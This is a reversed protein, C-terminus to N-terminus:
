QSAGASARLNRIHDLVPGSLEFWEGNGRVRLAAFQSHLQHERERPAGDEAALLKLPWPHACQLDALRQRINKLSWGIKVTAPQVPAMTIIFYVGGRSPPEIPTLEVFCKHDEPGFVHPEKTKAEHQLWASRAQRFLDTLDEISLGFESEFPDDEGNAFLEYDAESEESDDDIFKGTEMRELRRKWRRLRSEVDELSVNYPDQHHDIWEILAGFHGVRRGNGILWQGFRWSDILARARRDEETEGYIHLRRPPPPTYGDPHEISTAAWNEIQERGDLSHFAALAEEESNFPRVLPGSTRSRFVLRWKTPHEAVGGSVGAGVARAMEIFDPTTMLEVGELGSVAL